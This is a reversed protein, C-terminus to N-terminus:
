IPEFVRQIEYTKGDDWRESLEAGFYESASMLANKHVPFKEGNVSKLFVLESMKNIPVARFRACGFSRLKM